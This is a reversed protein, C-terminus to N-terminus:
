AEWPFPGQAQQKSAAAGNTQPPAAKKSPSYRKIERRDPEKSHSGVKITLAHGIMEHPEHLSRLGIARAIDSATRMAIDQVDERPHKFNLYTYIKRGAHGSTLTFEVGVYQNGSTPSTRWESNTIEAEYTGEPIDSREVQDSAPYLTDLGISSEEM